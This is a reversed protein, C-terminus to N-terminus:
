SMCRAFAYSYLCLYDVDYLSCSLSHNSGCPPVFLLKLSSTASSSAMYSKSVFIHPFANGHLACFPYLCPTVFPHSNKLFVFCTLIAPIWSTHFSLFSSLKLGMYPKSRELEELDLPRSSDRIKM